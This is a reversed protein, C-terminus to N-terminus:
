SLPSFSYARGDARVHGIGPFPLHAGAVPLRERATRELLKARTRRAKSQDADFEWTVDPHSFQVAPAHVIDGWVLLSDECSQVLFASHGIEHGYAAEATVHRGIKDGNKLPKVLSAVAALRSEVAFLQTENEPVYIVEVASFAPKGDPMVLGNIHDVHTHTIAIARVASRSIHAEDLADYLKGTTTRWANSCGTDILLNGDSAEILFANVQLRLMGNSFGAESM